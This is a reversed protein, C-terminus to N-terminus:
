NKSHKMCHTQDYEGEGNRRRVIGLYMGGRVEQGIRRHPKATLDLKYQESLVLNPAPCQLMTLRIPPVAKVFVSTGEELLWQSDM